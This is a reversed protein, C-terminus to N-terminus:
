PRWVGLVCTLYMAIPSRLTWAITRIWNTQVLREIHEASYGKSLRNHIPVQIAFTSIWIVGLLVLGALSFFLPMSESTYFAAQFCVMCSLFGELLMAPAVVRGIRQCHEKEFEGFRSSDVYAMLPYHVLQIIWILGVLFLTVGCHLHVFLPFINLPSEKPPSQVLNAQLTSVYFARAIKVVFLDTNSRVVWNGVM